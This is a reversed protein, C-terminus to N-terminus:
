CWTADAGTRAPAGSTRRGGPSRARGTRASRAAPPRVCRGTRAGIAAGGPVPWLLLATLDMAMSTIPRTSLAATRTSRSAVTARRSREWMEKGTAANRPGVAFSLVQTTQFSWALFVWQQNKKSGM